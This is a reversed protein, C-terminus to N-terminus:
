PAAVRGSRILRGTLDLSGHGPIVFVNSVREDVVPQINLGRADVEFFNQAKKWNWPSGMVRRAFQYISMKGAAADAASINASKGAVLAWQTM